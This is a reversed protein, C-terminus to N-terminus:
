RRPEAKRAAKGRKRFERLCKDFAAWCEPCYDLIDDVGKGPGLFRTIDLCVWGKVDGAYKGCKDCRVVTAM